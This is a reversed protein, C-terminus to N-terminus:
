SRIPFPWNSWRKRLKHCLLIHEWGEQIKPWPDGDFVPKHDQSVVMPRVLKGDVFAM